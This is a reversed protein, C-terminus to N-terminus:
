KLNSLLKQLSNLETTLSLIIADQKKNYAYEKMNVNNIDAVVSKMNNQFKIYLIIIVTLMIALSILSIIMLTVNDM